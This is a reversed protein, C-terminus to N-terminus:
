WHLMFYKIKAGDPIQIPEITINMDFRLSSPLEKKDITFAANIENVSVVISSILNDIRSIKYNTKIDKFTSLKSVSKDTKYRDDEIRVTTIVATSDLAESPTLTLLKKGGKEYIEINNINTTFEDGGIYRAISDNAFIMDLDMVKTSDTLFGINHKSIEFPNQEKKSCSMVLLFSLLLYFFSKTM